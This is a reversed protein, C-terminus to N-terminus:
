ATPEEDRYPNTLARTTGHRSQCSLYGEDWAAAMRARVIREVVVALNAFWTSRDWAESLAVRDADTLLEPPNTM